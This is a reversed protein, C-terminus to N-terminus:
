GSRTPKIGLSKLLRAFNSRSMGLLRAAAAQNGGTQTLADEVRHMKVQRISGAWAVPLASTPGALDSLHAPAIVEGNCLLVAREIINQLERINGPWTYGKLVAMAEPTFGRITKQAAMAARDLFFSALMPIDDVRERLPPLHVVVTALRYYLDERFRHARMEAVLDKNTAAVVRLDVRRPTHGGIRETQREQLVRLLKVQVELPLDAVEDLFLTGGDALEFKGPRASMAGTFAGREHGFLESEALSSPIAPCNVSILPGDRRPSGSHVGRAILEKGTGTEGIILISSDTRAAREVLTLAQQLIPSMGVIGRFGIFTQVEERLVVNEASLQHHKQELCARQREIETVYEANKVAVAFQAAVATVLTADAADFAARSRKPGLGIV